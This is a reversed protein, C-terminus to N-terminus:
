DVSTLIYFPNLPPLGWCAPPRFFSFLGLRLAPALVFTVLFLALGEQDEETEKLLRAVEKLHEEAQLRLATIRAEKEARTERSPQAPAEGAAQGQQQAGKQKKPASGGTRM